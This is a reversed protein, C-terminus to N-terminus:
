YESACILCLKGYILELFTTQILQQCTGNQTVSVNYLTNYSLVLQVRTNETFMINRLPPVAKVSVNRLLQQYYIQLNLLTWQVTVGDRSLEESDFQISLESFCFIYETSKFVHRAGGTFSPSVNIHLCYAFDTYLNCQTLDDGCWPM